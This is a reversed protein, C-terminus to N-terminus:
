ATATVNRKLEAVVPQPAAQAFAVAQRVIARQDRDLVKLDDDTALGATLLRSKGHAVPDIEALARIRGDGNGANPNAHGRFPFTIMELIAPGGGSRARAVAPAAAAIVKQADVGDVQEGPIGFVDGVRHLGAEGSGSDNDIVLVLPLKMRQALNLTEYVQGQDVAGAGITCVTVRGDKRYRNAFALGSALSAPAGVIGHGGYFGAEPAMLHLSGGKGGNLGGNRGMLEAMVAGPDCGQALAHGHCRHSTIIQDGRGAAIALGTIVAERGTALHCFGDIQGMAFLQGAREEFRRILLMQRYAALADERSQWLAPRPSSIDHDCHLCDGPCLGPALSAM